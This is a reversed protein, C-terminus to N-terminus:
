SSKVPATRTHPRPKAYGSRFAQDHSATATSILSDTEVCASKTLCRLVVRELMPALWGTSRAAAHIPTGSQVMKVALRLRICRQEDVDASRPHENRAVRLAEADIMAMLSELSPMPREFDSFAADVSDYMLAIALAYASAGPCARLRWLVGDLTPVYTGPTKGSLKKWFLSQWPGGICDIALDSLRRGPNQPDIAFGHSYARETLAQLVKLTSLPRARQLLETCVEAYRQLVPSEMAQTVVAVSEPHAQPMVEHPMSRWSENERARFLPCGHKQCWVIGAVQHSRRWYSFGWFPLDEGACMPCLMRSTSSGHLTRRRLERCPHSNDCWDGNMVAFVGGNMPVLTHFRLLTPLTIGAAASIVSFMEPKKDSDAATQQRMREIIPAIFVREDCAMAPVANLRLVRGWYGMACEDPMLRPSHIM